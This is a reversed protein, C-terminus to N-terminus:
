PAARNSAAETRAAQTRVRGTFRDRCHGSCFYTTHGDEDLVAGPSAMDVQMGCVPARAVTM